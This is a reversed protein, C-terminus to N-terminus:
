VEVTRWQMNKEMRRQLRMVEEHKRSEDWHLEAQLLDAIREVLRSDFGWRLGLLTRRLYFDELHRIKEHRACYIVAAAPPETNPGLPRGAAADRRALERVSGARAGFFRLPDRQHAEREQPSLVRPRGRADVFAGPLPREDTRAKKGSRGLMKLALEGAEEALHRYTTIKGGVVSFMAAKRGGIKHCHFSHKRSIEGASKKRQPPLPRVGSYTLLIDAPELALDPCLWNAEQLLYNVEEPTAAAHEPPGDIFIDTTGILLRDGGFPIIFFPRGDSRAPAYLAEDLQIRNEVLIHSGKTGGVLRPRRDDVLEAVANVWPGAANILVRGSFRLTRGTDAEEAVVEFGVATKRIEVAKTYNLCVAGVAEADIINELTLREPLPAQCDYYQFGGKLGQPNLHEVRELVAPPPFYHHSPLSDRLALWDYLILGLRLMWKPYKQGRYVPLVFRLPHVLHNAIHLLVEREHLSEFVLGINLLALYRLGGHILRTSYSTTGSGFDGKELLLVGAGRLALDRAIGAGNIGGGIIIVDFSDM